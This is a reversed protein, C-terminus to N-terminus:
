WPHNTSRHRLKPQEWTTAPHRVPEISVANSCINVVHSNSWRCVIIEQSEDVRYDFSGKRMKRLEKADKLPCCETRYECVTGTAKVGKERLISMPKVKDLFIHCPLCGCEQLADVFRVVMSAGVDLGRDPKTFLTGQSPQFWM